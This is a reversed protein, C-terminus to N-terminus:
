LFAHVGYMKILLGPVGAARAIKRKMTVLREYPEDAPFTSFCEILRYDAGAWLAGLTADFVKLDSRLNAYHLTVHDSSIMVCEVVAVAHGQRVLADANYHCANNFPPLHQNEVAVELKKEYEAACYNRVKLRLRNLLM